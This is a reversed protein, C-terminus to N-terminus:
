YFFFFVLFLFLSFPFVAMYKSDSTCPSDVERSGKLIKQKKKVKSLKIIIITLRKPNLKFPAGQQELIQIYMKRGLNPFNEGMM